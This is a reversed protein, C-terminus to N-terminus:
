GSLEGGRRVVIGGVRRLFSRTKGRRKGAVIRVTSLSLPAGCSVCQGEVREVRASCRRCVAYGGSVVNFGGSWGDTGQGV